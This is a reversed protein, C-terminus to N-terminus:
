FGDWDEIRTWATRGAREAAARRRAEAQALLADEIEPTAKFRRLKPASWGAKVSSIANM